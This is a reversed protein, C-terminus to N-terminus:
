TRDDNVEKDYIQLRPKGASRVPPSKLSDQITLAAAGAVKIRRISWRRALARLPPSEGRLVAQCPFHEGRRLPRSKPCTRARTSALPTTANMTLSKPIASSWRSGRGIGVTSIAGRGNSSYRCPYNPSVRNANREFSRSPKRTCDFRSGRKAVGNKTSTAPLKRLHGRQCSYHRRSLRGSRNEALSQQNAHHISGEFMRNALISLDASLINRSKERSKSGM